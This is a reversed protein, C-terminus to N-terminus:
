GVPRVTSRTRGIREACHLASEAGVAGARGAKLPLDAVRLRPAGPRGVNPLDGQDMLRRLHSRSYGSIEAAESLTVERSSVVKLAAELEDAHAECLGALGDHQYRRRIRDAEARWEAILRLLPQDM